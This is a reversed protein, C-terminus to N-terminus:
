VIKNKFFGSLKRQAEETNDATLNFRSQFQAFCLSPNALLFHDKIYYLNNM